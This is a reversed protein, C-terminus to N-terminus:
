IELLHLEDEGLPTFSASVTSFKLANPHSPRWYPMHEKATWVARVGEHISVDASVM